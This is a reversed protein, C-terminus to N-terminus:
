NNVNKAGINKLSEIVKSAQVRSLSYIGKQHYYKKIFNDLHESTWSVNRALYDIYLKQRITLGDKNLRYHRSRVFYRMLRRFKEEDLDKASKVRASEFLINRYEAESLGLEKKIIHILALKKKDM